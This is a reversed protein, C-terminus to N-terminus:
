SRVASGISASRLAHRPTRAARRAARDRARGPGRGRRRRAETDRHPRALARGRPGVPWEGRLEHKREGDLRHLERLLHVASRRVGSRACSRPCSRTALLPRAMVILDAEGRQLIAEALEPSHIRGVTMVARRGREEGRDRRRRQARQGLALRHHDDLHPRDIVGGSVHFADVGAEVLRPAIRATDDITRGGQVREYGSIRLTIPFDDGVERRIAGLVELLFRMRGDRKRGAYDDTRKNRWPSLFSGLLMYGHAAHLEIGDYGADRVRRVASAYQDVIASARRSRARAVAVRHSVVRDGVARPEPDEGDAALACRPGRARDAAAGERRARAGRRRDRPAERDRRGVRLADVAPGRPAPPRGRVGRAHDSRRRGKARAALYDVLRKTPLQDLGAYGTTMPSMVIRNKVTMAGIRIPEFLKVVVPRREGAARQARAGSPRREGEARRRAVQPRKSALDVPALAAANRGAIRGFFTAEGISLGSAYGRGEVCLGATNRGAAFLGPIVEGENTVVEASARIALGGLTFVGFFSNRTSCDLAAFPPV